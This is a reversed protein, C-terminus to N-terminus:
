WTYELPLEGNYNGLTVLGVFMATDTNARSLDALVNYRIYKKRSAVNDAFTSVGTYTGADTATVVISTAVLTEADTWSVNDDSEQVQLRLSLTAAAGLATSYGVSVLGSNFGTSDISVGTTDVNDTGSGAVIGQRGVAYVNKIKDKKDFYNM